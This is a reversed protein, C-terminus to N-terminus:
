RTEAMGHSGLYGAPPRPASSVKVDLGFPKISLAQEPRVITPQLPSTRANKNGGSQPHPRRSQQTM